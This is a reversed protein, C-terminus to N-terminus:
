VFNMPMSIFTRARAANDKCYKLYDKIFERLLAYVSPNSRKLDALYSASSILAESGTSAGASANELAIIVDENNSVRLKEVIANHVVNIDMWNDNLQFKSMERRKGKESVAYIGDAFCAPVGASFGRQM